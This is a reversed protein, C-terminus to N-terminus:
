PSESFAEFLSFFSCSNFSATIRIFSGKLDDFQARNKWQAPGAWMPLSSYSYENLTESSQLSLMFTGLDTGSGLATESPRYFFISLLAYSSSYSLCM